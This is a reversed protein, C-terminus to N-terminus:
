GEFPEPERLGLWAMIQGREKKLSEIEFVYVRGKQLSIVVSAPDVVASPAQHRIMIKDYSGTVACEVVYTLVVYKSAKGTRTDVFGRSEARGGRFEGILIFRGAIIKALVEERNM